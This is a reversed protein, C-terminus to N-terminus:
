RRRRGGERERAHPSTGVVNDGREGADNGLGMPWAPGARGRPWTRVGATSKPWFEEGPGV